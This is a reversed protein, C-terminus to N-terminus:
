TYRIRPNLYAYSLDVLLNILVYSAGVVLTFAQLATYDRQLVANVGYSGLGPLAFITEIIVAGGIANALALGLVTVVPLIANKLAHRRLVTVRGLGKARATRVYDQGLVELMQTRTLRLIIASLYLGIILAPTAFQRLNRLPDDTIPSYGFPPSWQFLVSPIVLVLTAVWFSPVALAFISVLRIGQDILSGRTAAAIIGLPIGLLMQISMSLVVLEATVPLRERIESAIPRNTVFSRGFDGRVVGSLWRPYQEWWPRDLGMSSRLQSAREPTYSGELRLDVVDGPISRIAWFVFLSLLFLVLPVFLLRRLIYSSV